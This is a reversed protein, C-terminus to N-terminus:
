NPFIYLYIHLMSFLWILENKIEVWSHVGPWAAVLELTLGAAATFLIGKNLCLRIAPLSTLLSQPPSTPPHPPAHGGRAQRMLRAHLLGFDSQPTSIGLAASDFAYFHERTLRALTMLLCTASSAPPAAFNLPSNPPGGGRWICGLRQLWWRWHVCIVYNHYTLKIATM